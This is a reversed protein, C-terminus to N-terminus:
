EYFDYVCMIPWKITCGVKINIHFDFHWGLFFFRKKSSEELYVLYLIISLLLFICNSDYLQSFQMSYFSFVM